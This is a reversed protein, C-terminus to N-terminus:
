GTANKNSHNSDRPTSTTKTLSKHHIQERLFEEALHVYRETTSINAHGMISKVTLINMGAMIARTGYTHRLSHFSLRDKRECFGDNYGLKDVIARFARSTKDKTLPKSDWFVHSEEKKLNSKRRLLMGMCEDDAFVTRDKGSKTDTLRIRNNELDVHIWKLGTTEGIRAGTHLSFLIADHLADGYSGKAEKLINEEQTEDIIRWRQSNKDKAARTGRCPNDGQWLPTAPTEASLPIQEAMRFVNSVINRCINRSSPSLNRQMRATSRQPATQRLKELFANVLTPTIDGMAYDGFFPIIHQYLWSQYTKWARNSNKIWDLYREAAERFTIAKQKDLIAQQKAQEADVAHQARHEALSYPKGIEDIKQLILSRLEAAKAATYGESAWGVGEERLISKGECTVRYRISFYRDPKRLHKRTPHERFRVGIIGPVPIWKQTKQGM